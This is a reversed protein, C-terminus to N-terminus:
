AFVGIYDPPIYEYSTEDEMVIMRPSRDYVSDYKALKSQDAFVEEYTGLVQLAQIEGLQDLEGQDRCRILCLSNIGNKRTPIKTVLFKGTEMDFKEPFREAVEPGLKTRDLCFTLVDIM